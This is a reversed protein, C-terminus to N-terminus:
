RPRVVNDGCGHADVMAIPLRERKEHTNPNAEDEDEAKTGKQGAREKMHHWLELPDEGNDAGQVDKPKGVVRELCGIVHVLFLPFGQVEDISEDQLHQVRLYDDIPERQVTRKKDLQGLSGDREYACRNHKRGQAERRGGRPCEETGCNCPEHLLRFDSARYINHQRYQQYQYRNVHGSDDIDKSHWVFRISVSWSLTVRGLARGPTEIGKKEYKRCPITCPCIPNGM